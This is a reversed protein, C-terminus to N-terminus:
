HQKKNAEQNKPLSVARGRSIQQHDMMMMMIEEQNSGQKDMELFEPAEDIIEDIVIV